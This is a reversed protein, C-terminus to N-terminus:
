SIPWGQQVTGSSKSTISAAMAAQLSTYIIRVIRITQDISDMGAANMQQHAHETLLWHLRSSSFRPSCHDDSDLAAGNPVVTDTFNQVPADQGDDGDSPQEVERQFSLNLKCALADDVM